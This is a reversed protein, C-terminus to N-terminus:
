RVALWPRSGPGSDSCVMSLVCSRSRLLHRPQVRQLHPAAPQQVAAHVDDCDGAPREAGLRRGADVAIAGNGMIADINGAADVELARWDRLPAMAFHLVDCTLESM